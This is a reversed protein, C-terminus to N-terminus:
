KPCFFGQKPSFICMNPLAGGLKAVGRWAGLTSASDLNGCNKKNIEQNFVGGLYFTTYYCYAIFCLTLRTVLRTLRTVLWMLWTLFRTLRTGLRTLRTVLRTLRTVLRTFRTVFRTLRTALRAVRTFRTVRLDVTHLTDGVADVGGGGAGGHRFLALIELLQPLLPLNQKSVPTAQVPPPPLTRVPINAQM